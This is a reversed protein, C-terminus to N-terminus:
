RERIELRDMEGLAVRPVLLDRTGKRVRKEESEQPVRRVM